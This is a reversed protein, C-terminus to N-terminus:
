KLLNDCEDSIMALGRQVYNKAYFDPDKRCQEHTFGAKAGVAPKIILMAEWPDKVWGHEVFDSGKGSHLELEPFEVQWKWLSDTAQMVQVLRYIDLSKDAFISQNAAYSTELALRKERFEKYSAGQTCVKVAAVKERFGQHAQQEAVQKAQQEANPGCGCLM